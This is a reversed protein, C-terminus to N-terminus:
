TGGQGWGCGEGHGCGCGEGQGCGCGEGLGSGGHTVKGCGINVSTVAPV